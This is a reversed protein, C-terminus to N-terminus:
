VIHAENWVMEMEGGISFKYEERDKANSDDSPNGIFYEAYHLAKEKSEAEVDVVYIRTLGVKYTKM